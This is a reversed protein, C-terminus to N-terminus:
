LICRNWINRQPSCHSWQSRSRWLDASSIGSRTTICHKSNKDTHRKECFLTSNDCFTHLNLNSLATCTCRIAAALSDSKLAFASISAIAASSACTSQGDVPLSNRLLYATEQDSPHTINLYFLCLELYPTLLFVLFLCAYIHEISSPDIWHVLRFRFKCMELIPLSSGTQRAFLLQRLSWM